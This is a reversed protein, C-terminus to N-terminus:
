TADDGTEEGVPLATHMRHQVLLCEGDGALDLTRSAGDSAWGAAGLLVEGAADAESLWAILREVNGQEVLTDVCAALLRSGHGTRVHDPHVALVTLEAVRAADLDPDAAPALCAVGVVDDRELALLVVEGSSASASASLAESWREELEASDIGSLFGSPLVDSYAARWCALQVGAASSADRVAGPRVSVTAM